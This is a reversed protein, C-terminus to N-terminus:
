RLRQMVIPGRAATFPRALWAGILVDKSDATCNATLCCRTFIHHVISEGVYNFELYARMMAANPRDFYCCYGPTKHVASPLFCKCRDSRLTDPYWSVFLTLLTALGTM